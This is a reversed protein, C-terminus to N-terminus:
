NLDRSVRLASKINAKRVGAALVMAISLSLARGDVQEYAMAAQTALLDSEQTRTAVRTQKGIVGGFGAVKRSLQEGDVDADDIGLVDVSVSQLAQERLTREDLALIVAAAGDEACVALTRQVDLISLPYRLDLFRELSQSNGASIVGVPNGLMHLFDALDKVDYEVSERDNGVIAFVALADSPAGAIDCALKGLQRPTPEAYILPIQLDRLEGRLAHPVIAGYAGLRQAQVLQRADVDAGPIYLAGPRISDTDDALSTVTVESAFSPDLDFGYQSALHGLTMRRNMSESVASM